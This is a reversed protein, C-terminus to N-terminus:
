IHVLENAYEMKRICAVMEGFETPDLSWDYDPINVDIRKGPQVINKTYESDELRFHKEIVKAGLSAALLCAMKGQYHCSYGLDNEQQSIYEQFDINDERTPYYGAWGHNPCYLKSWGELEKENYQGYLDVSIFKRDFDMENIRQILRSNQKCIISLKIWKTGLEEVLKLSEFDFVSWFLSIGEQIAVDVIKEWAKKALIYKTGHPRSKKTFLQFKVADAGSEKAQKVLEIALDVSGCHSIGAEAIITKIM